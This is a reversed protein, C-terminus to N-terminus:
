IPTQVINQIRILLILRSRIILINQSYDQFVKKKKKKLDNYNFIQYIYSSGTVSTWLFDWGSDGTCKITAGRADEGLGM